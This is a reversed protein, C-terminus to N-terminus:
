LIGEYFHAKLRTVAIGENAEILLSNRVPDSSSTIFGLFLTM